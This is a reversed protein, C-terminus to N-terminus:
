GAASWAGRGQEAYIRNACERQGDVGTAGHPGIDSCLGNWTRPIIQWCGWAGSGQTNWVNPDGGSENQVVTASVPGGTCEGTVSAGGGSGSSRPRSAAALVARREAEAQLAATDRLYGVTLGRWAAARNLAVERSSLEFKPAPAATPAVDVPGDGKLASWAVPASLAAIV